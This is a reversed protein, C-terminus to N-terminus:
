KIIARTLESVLLRPTTHPVRHILSSFPQVQLSTGMVMLLDCTTFDPEFSTRFREPLDEGFFVIDPKMFGTSCSPCVAPRGSLIDAEIQYIYNHM